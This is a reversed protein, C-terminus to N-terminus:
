PDKLTPLLHVPLFMELNLRLSESLLLGQGIDVQDTYDM